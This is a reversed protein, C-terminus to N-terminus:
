DFSNLFEQQQHRDGNTLVQYAIGIEQVIGHRAKYVATAAGAPALYWDNLGIVFVKSLHAHTAALTLAEGPRVDDVEYRANATSIWVIRNLYHSQDSVGLRSLLRATGFGARIGQPTFCFFLQTAYGRSASHPLAARAASRTQGLKVQGIASATATGTAAPCGAVKSVTVAAAASSAPTSAGSGNLADVTCTLSTGEDLTQVTYTSSSAGPIPTGDRYWQYHFVLPANTWSGTDCTLARGAAATGRIRPAALKVPVGAPIRVPTSAGSAPGTGGQNTATVTFTYSVGTSLGSVTITTTSGTAKVAPGGGAPAATVTYGTISAGGDSSPATFSVTATGSGAVGATATPTGPAVPAAAAITYTSVSAGTLLDHSTATVALTQTGVTATDLVAGSPNGDQDLCSAIGTGGSGDKCGFSSSLTQGYTYTAGAAPTTITATPPQAVTWSLAISGNAPTSDVGEEDAATTITPTGIASPEVWSSGAGGGSGITDTDQGGPGGGYYGGGGGGARCHDPGGSGGQGLEGDTEGGPCPFGNGAGTAVVGGSTSTGGGGGSGAGGVYDSGAQATVGADGGSCYSGGLYTGGGGGGGGGVLLRSDTPSLGAAAPLTRVDSAGGGGGGGGQVTGNSGAGGGGTGGTTSTGKWFDGGAGGVEAYLTQEPTVPLTGTVVAGSGGECGAGVGGGGQGGTATVTLASVGIPVTWTAEGPIVFTTAGIGGILSRQSTSALAATLAGAPGALVAVVVFVLRTLPVRRLERALLKPM